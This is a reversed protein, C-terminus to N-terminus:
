LFKQAEEINYVIRDDKLSLDEFFVKYKEFYSRDAKVLVPFLQSAQYPEGAKVTKLVAKEIEALYLNLTNLSLLLDKFFSEFFVEHYLELFRNIYPMLQTETNGNFVSIKLAHSFKDYVMDRGYIRHPDFNEINDWRENIFQQLKSFGEKKNWSVLILIAQYIIEKDDSSLLQVLKHIRDTDNVNDLLMVESLDYGIEGEEDYYYLTDYTEKSMNEEM